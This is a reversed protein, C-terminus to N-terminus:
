NPLGVSLLVRRCASLRGRGPAARRTCISEWRGSVLNIEAEGFQASLLCCLRRRRARESYGWEGKGGARAPNGATPRARREGTALRQRVVGGGPTRRGRQTFPRRGVSWASATVPVVLLVGVVASVFSVAVVLAASCPV